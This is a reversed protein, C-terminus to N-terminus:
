LARRAVGLDDAASGGRRQGRLDVGTRAGPKGALDDRRTTRSTVYNEGEGESISLFARKEALLSILSCKLRYSMCIM